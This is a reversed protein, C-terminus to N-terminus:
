VSMEIYQKESLCIFLKGLAKLEIICGKEGKEKCDKLSVSTFVEAANLTYNIDEYHNYARYCIVSTNGIFDDYYISFKLTGEVKDYYEVTTKLTGKMFLILEESKSSPIIDLSDLCISNKVTKILSKDMPFYLSKYIPIYSINSNIVIPLNVLNKKHNIDQAININEKSSIIEEKMCKKVHSKENKECNSNNKEENKRLDNKNQKLYNYIIALKILKLYFEMLKILLLIILLQELIFQINIPNARRCYIYNKM